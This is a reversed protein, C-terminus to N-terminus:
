KGSKSYLWQMGKLLGMPYSTEHVAGDIIDAQIQLGPYQRADLQAVFANQDDVWHYPLASSTERSGTAFYVRAKLDRHKRAYNNEENFILKNNWFLAPSLIVYSEFLDSRNLLVYSAFLGGASHGVLTRKKTDVNYRAEIFPLLETEIFDLYQPAQGPQFKQWQPDSSPSYDRIRSLMMHDGKSFGIGVLIVEELVGMNMPMSLAGAAVPFAYPGDNLIVLPYKKSKAKKDPSNDTSSKAYGRPVSIYIPYTRHLKESTLEYVSTNPLTFALTSLDNAQGAKSVALISFLCFLKFMTLRLM